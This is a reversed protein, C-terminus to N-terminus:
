QAEWRSMIEVRHCMGYHALLIADAIAHTIKLKPNQAQYLGLAIDKNIGKDRKNHVGVAPMWKRPIVLEYKNGLAAVLM